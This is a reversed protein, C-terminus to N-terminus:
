DRKKQKLLNDLYENIRDIDTENDTPQNDQMFIGQRKGTAASPPIVEPPRVTEFNFVISVPILQYGTAGIEPRFVIQWNENIVIEDPLKSVETNIRDASYSPCASVFIMEAENTLQNVIDQKCIWWRDVASWRGYYYWSQFPMIGPYVHRIVSHLRQCGFCDHECFDLSYKSQQRNYWCHKVDQLNFFFNNNFPLIIKENVTVMFGAWKQSSWIIYSFYEWWQFIQLINKFTLIQSESNYFGTRTARNIVERYIVSRSHPIYIEVLFM